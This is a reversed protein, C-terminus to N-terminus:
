ETGTTNDRRVNAAIQRLKDAVEAKGGGPAGDIGPTWFDNPLRACCALAANENGLRAHADAQYLLGFVVDREWEKPNIAEGRDFDELAKEYQGMRRYVLGRSLLSMVDPESEHEIVNNLDALARDPMGVHMWVFHRSFIADTNASDDRIWGNVVSLYRQPDSRLMDHMALLEDPTTPQKIEANDSM